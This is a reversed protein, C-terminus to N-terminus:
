PSGLGNFDGDVFVAIRADVIGAIVADGDGAVAVDVVALLHQDLV